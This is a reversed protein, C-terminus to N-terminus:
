IARLSVALDSHIHHSDNPQYLVFDDAYGLLKVGRPLQLDHLQDVLYNFLTPSLTSGQPTRNEFDHVQSLGGQFRLFGKRDTLFNHLWSLLKGKVGARGLSSLISISNSLDFAKTIDLIVAVTGHKKHKTVDQLFVSAADVTGSKRKFGFTHQHLPQAVHFLRNCGYNM